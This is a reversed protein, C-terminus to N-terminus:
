VQPAKRKPEFASMFYLGGTRRDQKIQVCFEKNNKTVGYFRYLLDGNGNPNYRSTPACRTNEITEFSAAYLRLREKRERKPKQMLHEWYSDIFVKRGGFYASRIYARRKTKHAIISHLKRAKRELEHYSTGTLLNRRPIYQNM